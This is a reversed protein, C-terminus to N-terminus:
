DNAIQLVAQSAKALRQYDDFRRQHGWRGWDLDVREKAQEALAGLHEGAARLLDRDKRQRPTPTGTM